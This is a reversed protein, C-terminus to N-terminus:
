RGDKNPKKQGTYLICDGIYFIAIMVFALETVEISNQHMWSLLLFWVLSM